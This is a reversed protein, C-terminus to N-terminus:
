NEGTRSSRGWGTYQGAWTLDGAEDTVELPAGALDTHFHSIRSARKATDIAAAALAEAIVADVRAPPSYPDGYESWDGLTIPISSILNLFLRGM